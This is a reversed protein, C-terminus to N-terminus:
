ARRSATVPPLEIRFSFRTGWGRGTRVELESGMEAVLRRCIGLGLGTGSFRYGSEREPERRFPQYLTALAAPPIGGGTDRVAFEVGHGGIAHASLTISGEHTFKLANTTLNLLVRGLPISFGFRLDAALPLVELTLGRQEAIPRVMNEVSAIMDNVSFLSPTPVGTGTRATEVMDTTLGVLGLAASYIIGLQRKQVPSIDGSEGRYLLDALFLISTLPSRLEHAVEVALDPTTHLVRDYGVGGQDASAAVQELRELARLMTVPAVPVVNWRRVLESRLLEVVRRRLEAATVTGPRPPERGACCAAAVAEIEAAAIGEGLASLEAPM